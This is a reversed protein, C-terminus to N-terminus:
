EYGLDKRQKRALYYELIADMGGYFLLRRLEVEQIRNYPGRHSELFPEINRNYIPVGLRVFSQFKLSCIGPRNDLAHAALMTDWGWCHVGEGFTKITWRQEMKLNSAIKRTNDSLLLDKTAIVAKGVFPYSVTHKGNSVACSVIKGEPWEPKICTTEYDAAVWGGQEQIQAIEVAAVKPDTVVHIREKWNPQRPPNRQIAFAQALHEGFMRDLTESHMRMLYSPHYTPCIWHKEYPIRWGVWRELTDIKDWLGRLVSTLATKGLPIIVQPNLNEITKVLNPRCYDIQKEDPTQNNPPRCIIANTTWADKDLDIGHESLSERLFQGAKGIFPRGADDETEGPAEGVVLM